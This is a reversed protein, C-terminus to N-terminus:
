PPPLYFPQEGWGRKSAIIQFGFCLLILSAAIEFLIYMRALNKSNCIMTSERKGAWAAGGSVLHAKHLDLGFENTVVAELRALMQYYLEKTMKAADGRRGASGIVGVTFAPTRGLTKQVSM